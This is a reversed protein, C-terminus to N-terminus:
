DLFIRAVRSKIGTLIDWPITDAQAALDAASVSERGAGGILVAEEGPQVDGIGSVDVVTQDM